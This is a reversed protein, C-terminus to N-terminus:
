ETRGNLIHLMAGLITIDRDAGILTYTLMGLIYVPHVGRVDVYGM